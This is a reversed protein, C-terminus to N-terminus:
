TYPNTVPSTRADATRRAKAAQRAPAGEIEDMLEKFAGVRGIAVHEDRDSPSACLADLSASFLGGVYARLAEVLPTGWGKAIAEDLADMIRADVM